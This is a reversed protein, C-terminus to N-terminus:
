EKDGCFYRMFLISIFSKERSPNDPDVIENIKKVGTILFIVNVIDVFYKYNSFFVLPICLTIITAERSKTVQHIM